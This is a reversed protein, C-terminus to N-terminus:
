SNKFLGDNVFTFGALGVKTCSGTAATAKIEVTSTHGVFLGATFKSVLKALAPNVGAKTISTLTTAVSSTKGTNWTIKATGLTPKGFGALFTACDGKYTTKSVVNASTVGGGVCGGLKSNTTVTSTLPKGGLKPLAPSYVEKGTLTKCSTTASAAAGASGAVIAGVPVLLSCAVLLGAAKRM